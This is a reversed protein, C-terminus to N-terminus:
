ETPYTFSLNKITIIRDKLSMSEYEKIAKIDDEYKQQTGIIKASLPIFLQVKAVAKQIQEERSIGRAEALSDLVPTAVTNDALWAEVEKQQNPFTLKEVESFQAMYASVADDAGKLAEEKKRSSINELSQLLKNESLEKVEFNQVYIQSSEQFVIDGLPVQEEIDKDFSAYLYSIPYIGAQKLTMPDLPIGRMKVITETQIQKMNTDYYNNM